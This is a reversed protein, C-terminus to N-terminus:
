ELLARLTMVFGYTAGTPHGARTTLQTRPSNAFAFYSRYALATGDILFLRKGMGVNYRGTGGIRLRRDSAASGFAPRPGAVPASQNNSRPARQRSHVAVASRAPEAAGARERICALRFDVSAPIKQRARDTIRNSIASVRTNAIM